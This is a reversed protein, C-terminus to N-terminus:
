SLHRRDASESAWAGAAIEGSALVDLLACGVGEASRCAHMMAFLGLRRRDLRTAQADLEQLKRHAIFGAVECSRPNTRSLSLLATIEAEGFGFAEARRVFSVTRAAEPPYRRPGKLGRLPADILGCRIYRQIAGVAVGTCAALERLSLEKGSM